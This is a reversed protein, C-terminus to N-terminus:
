WFFPHELTYFKNMYEREAPFLVAFNLLWCLTQVPLVM